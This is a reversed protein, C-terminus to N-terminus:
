SEMLFEGTSTDVVRVHPTAHLRFFFFLMKGCGRIAKTLLDRIMREGVKPCTQVTLAKIAALVDPSLVLTCPDHCELHVFVNGDDDKEIPPFDPHYSGGQVAFTRIEDVDGRYRVFEPDDPQSGEPVPISYRLEIEM